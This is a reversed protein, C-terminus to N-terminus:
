AARVHQSELVRQCTTVLYRKTGPDLMASAWLLVPAGLLEFRTVNPSNPAMAALAGMEECQAHRGAGAIVLGLDDVLVLCQLNLRRRVGDLAMCLDSLPDGRRAHRREETLASDPRM